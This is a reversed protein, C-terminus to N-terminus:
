CCAGHAYTGVPFFQGPLVTQPSVVHCRKRCEAGLRPAPQLFVARRDHAGGRRRIFRHPAAALRRPFEGLLFQPHVAHGSAAPRQRGARLLVAAAAERQFLGFDEGLFHVREAAAGGELAHALGHEGGHENFVAGLHLFLFVQGGDDLAFDAPALAVGFGAGAGVEGTQLGAGHKLAVMEQDVAM